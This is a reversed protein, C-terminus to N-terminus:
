ENIKWVLKNEGDCLLYWDPFTFALLCMFGDLPMKELVCVSSFVVQERGCVHVRLSCALFSQPMVLIEPCYHSCKKVQTMSIMIWNTNESMKM